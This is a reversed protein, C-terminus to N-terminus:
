KEKTGEMEYLVENSEDDQEYVKMTVSYLRDDADGTVLDKLGVLDKAAVPNANITVHPEFTLNIKATDVNTRLETVLNYTGDEAVYDTRTGEKVNVAVRYMSEDLASIGSNTQKILFVHVPYNDTNNIEITESMRGSGAASGFGPEYILYVNGLEEEDSSSSFVCQNKMGYVTNTGDTYSITGLVMTSSGSDKIDITIKRSIRSYQTTDYGLSQACDSDMGTSQIVFASNSSGMDYM